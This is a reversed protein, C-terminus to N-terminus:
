LEDHELPFEFSVDFPVELKEKITVRRNNKDVVTIQDIKALPGEATVKNTDAKFEIITENVYLQGSASGTADLAIVLQYPDNQMLQSSRRYRNKMPIVSGGRLLIPIDDLGVPIKGGKYLADSAPSGRGLQGSFFYYFIDTKPLTFEVSSAGEETIPHVLLDGITFQDDVSGFLESETPYEYWLPKLVAQGLTSSKAFETYIVPLLKYRLRIAETIHERYPSPFLYPERRKTDIHGHARFFGYFLGLQYWRLALEDGVDGFFGGVDAGCFPFSVVNSTLMMPLSSAMHRWTAQNDGTWMAATRQSGAFFSRTLIFPREQNLDRLSSYTTEHFALGYINHVSRHEFGNYHLVDKPASTEPGNFVSPENMDNWIHMNPGVMFKQHKKDWFLQTELNFPDVWVSEGPWCHGYYTEDKPNKVEIGRKIIDNSVDYGTKIHPDIITVLHRGTRGLEKVMREPNPFNEKDWTFYKKNDTYEIDLWITDYPIEFEDFKANVELVDKEDNYNWRCQHYGLSFLDPLQVFGTVRGYQKTVDAPTDEIIVIFDLEGNELIWHVTSDKARHIDVYTDAANVWFIGVSAEPKVAVLFPISGYMPLRSDIEYEFIDVNYLRYPEKDTTDKLLLSDSHEPIGYLHTFGLLSFDVAVSEPGLPLSDLKSDPFSDHFMDFSSEQPLLDDEEEYRHHEVNLFQHANVKLQEKGKYKFTFVIPHFQLIVGHNGYEVELRDKNEKVTADSKSVGPRFAWKETENFRNPNVHELQVHREENLRFRFNDEVISIEFPLKVTKNALEKLIVGNVTGEAGVNLSEVRYPSQFNEAQSVEKAYHRNRHCFGSQDCTKFLYEKVAAVTTILLLIALVKM